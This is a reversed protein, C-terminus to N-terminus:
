QGKLYEYDVSLETKMFQGKKQVQKMQHLNHYKLWKNKFTLRSINWGERGDLFGLLLIYSMLFSFVPSIFLNIFNAEKGDHFHKEASLKAYSVAKRKCEDLDKVSYHHLYGNIRKTKVQKPLLLREHVKQESWRVLNRNFLRIHHGRGWSGFRILKKGFYSKFRIDYVSGADNLELCHLSHVLELDPIEDADISLIWEHKALEVGINKNAGYGKWANQYVRCGHALAIEQTNDTSGNDVVVIDSSILRAMSVCGAIVDAENKTIIVISVPVM